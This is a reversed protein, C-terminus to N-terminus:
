KERFIEVPQMKRLYIYPIIISTVFTLLLVIGIVSIEAKSYYFYDRISVRQYSSGTYDASSIIANFKDVLEKYKLYEILSTCFKIVASIITAAGLTVAIYLANVLICKKKTMGLIYYIGYTRLDETVSLATVGLLGIISILVAASLLVINNRFSRYEANKKSIYSANLSIYSLHNNNCATKFEELEESTLDDNLIVIHGSESSVPDIKEYLPEGESTVTILPLENKGDLLNDIDFEDSDERNVSTSINLSPAFQEDIIGVIVGEPADSKKEYSFGNEDYAIESYYLKVTDGIKYGSGNFAALMVKDESNHIESLKKGSKMNLNIKEAFDRSMIKIETESDSQLKGLESFYLDSQVFPLQEINVETFDYKALEETEEQHIKVRQAELEEETINGLEFDDQMLSFMEEYSEYIEYQKDMIYESYNIDESVYFSNESCCNKYIRTVTFYGSINCVVLSIFFLSLAFQCIALLNAAPRRKIQKLVTKFIM